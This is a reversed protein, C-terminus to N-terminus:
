TLTERQQRKGKPPQNLYCPLTSMHCKVHSLQGWCMVHSVSCTVHSVFCTVHVYNTQREKKQCRLSSKNETLRSIDSEVQYNIVSALACAMQLLINFKLYSQLFDCITTCGNKYNSNFPNNKTKVSNQLWKISIQM